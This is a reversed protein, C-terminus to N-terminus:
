NENIDEEIVEKPYSLLCGQIGLNSQGFSLIPKGQALQTFGQDVLNIIFDNSCAHGRRRINDSFLNEPTFSLSKVILKWLSLDANIPLIQPITEPELSSQELCKKILDRSHRWCTQAIIQSNGPIEPGGHLRSFYYFLPMDLWCKLSDRGLLLAAAGDSQIGGDQRLRHDADGFVRDSTLILAYPQSSTKQLYNMSLEVAKFVSACALQSVSFDIKPKFEFRNKIKTLLSEPPAPISFGQTRAHVIIGIDEVQIFAPLKKWLRLISESVLEFDSLNSNEYFYRCGNKLLADIRDKPVKKEIGWQTVDRAEGPLYYAADIIGLNTRM